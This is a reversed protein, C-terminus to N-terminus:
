RKGDMAKRIAAILDAEFTELEGDALGVRYDADQVRERDLRGAAGDSRGEDYAQLAFDASDM